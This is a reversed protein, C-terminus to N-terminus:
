VSALMTFAHQVISFCRCSSSVLSTSQRLNSSRSCCSNSLGVDFPPCCWLYSMFSRVILGSESHSDGTIWVRSLASIM